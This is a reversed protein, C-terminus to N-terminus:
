HIKLTLMNQKEEYSILHYMPGFMIAVDFENDKFMSLDTANAEVVKLQPDNVKIKGINPRCLEVATVDYGKNALYPIM